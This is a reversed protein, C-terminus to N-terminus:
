IQFIADYHGHTELNLPGKGQPIKHEKHEHASKDPPGSMFIGKNKALFAHWDEEKRWDHIFAYDGAHEGTDKLICCGLFGPSGKMRSTKEKLAKEAEEGMGQPVEFIYFNRNM